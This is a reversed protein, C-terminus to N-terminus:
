KPTVTIPIPIKSHRRNSAFLITSFFTWRKGDLKPVFEDSAPVERVFKNFQRLNGEFVVPIPLLEKHDTSKFVLVALIKQNESRPDLTQKEIM